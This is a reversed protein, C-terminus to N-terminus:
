PTPSPPVTETPRVTPTPARTPTESAASPQASPTPRPTQTETPPRPTSTETVEPTASATPTIAGTLTYIRYVVEGFGGLPGYDVGGYNVRVGAGNATFVEVAEQGLYEQINGPQVTGRFVEAGDVIVTVWATQEFQLSVPVNTLAVVQPPATAVVLTATAAVEATPDFSPTSTGERRGLEIATAQPTAQFLVAALRSSGWLFFGLLAVVVIASVLVDASLWRLRRAGLRLSQRPRAPALPPGAPPSIPQTDAAAPPPPAARPAAPRRMLGRALDGLTARRAPADFQALVEEPDLGVHRAYNRLFGRAQTPSPIAQLEDAEIAALYKIRIRTAKEVDALTQGRAERAARLTAGVSGAM